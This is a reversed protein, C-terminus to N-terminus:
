VAVERTFAVTHLRGEARFQLFLRYRGASPFSARFRLRDADPHVHLFALDGERLAVLHGKAGLYDALAVPRGDRTVTFALETEAGAGAPDGALEVRLGDATAVPAPPPLTRSSVPGDVQLDTALTEPTGGHSFDAFVRYTGPEALRLPVSWSGDPQQTPHLHQFGTLDRRVVILHMRKTHELDFERVTKRDDGVIRFRLPAPHGVAAVPDALELTLGDNSVALGRVADAGGHGAADMGDMGGHGSDTVAAHGAASSDPDHLPAFADGLAFAAAFVFGLGALFGGLKLAPRNM